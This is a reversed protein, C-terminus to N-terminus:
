RHEKKKASYYEKIYIHVHVRVFKCYHLINNTYEGTICNINQFKTKQRVLINKNKVDKGIMGLKSLVTM